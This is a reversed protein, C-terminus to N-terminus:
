EEGRGDACAARVIEWDRASMPQPRGPLAAAEAKKRRASLDPHSALWEPPDIDLPRKKAEDAKKETEVWGELHAFARSLAAPDYGSAAMIRIAADDARAEQARSHRMESVQGSLIVAQQALGGGGAVIDLAVAVGIHRYLAILGDRAEVHGIEHAIVATLEDSKELTELLGRTVRVRGGPLALANPAEVDVFEFEIPFASRANQSLRDLTPAIATKAADASPGTCPKFVVEIQKAFNAGLTKEVVIPTQRALPEAMMPGGIFIAAAIAATAAILGGVIIALRRGPHARALAQPALARIQDLLDNSAVLRIDPAATLGIRVDRGPQHDITLQEYPLFQDIGPGIVRLGKADAQVTVAHAAATHGDFYRGPRGTTM